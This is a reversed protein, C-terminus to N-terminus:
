NETYNRNDEFEIDSECSPLESIGGELCKTKEEVFECSGSDSSWETNEACQVEYASIENIKDNIKAFRAHYYVLM